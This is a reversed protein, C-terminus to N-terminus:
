QCSSEKGSHENYAHQRKGDRTASRLCLHRSRATNLPVRSDRHLAAIVRRVRTEIVDGDTRYLCLPRLHLGILSRFDPHGEARTQATGSMLATRQDLSDRHGGVARAAADRFSGRGRLM